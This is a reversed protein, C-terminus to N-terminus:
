TQYKSPFITSYPWRPSVHNGAGDQPLHSYRKFEHIFHVASNCIECKIHYAWCFLRLQCPFNERNFFSKNYTPDTLSHFTIRVGKGECHEMNGWVEFVFPQEIINIKFSHAQKFFVQFCVHTTPLKTTCQKGKRWYKRRTFHLWVKLWLWQCLVPLFCDSTYELTPELTWERWTCCGSSIIYITSLALCFTINEGGRLLSIYHHKCSTFQLEYQQSYYSIIQLLFICHACSHFEFSIKLSPRHWYIIYLYLIVLSTYM